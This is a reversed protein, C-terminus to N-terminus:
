QNGAQKLPLDLHQAKTFFSHKKEKIIRAKHLNKLTKKQQFIKLFQSTHVYACLYTLIRIHLIRIHMSIACSAHLLSFVVEHCFFLSFFNLGFLQKAVVM